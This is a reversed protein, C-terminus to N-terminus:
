DELASQLNTEFSSRGVMEEFTLRNTKEINKLITSHIQSDTFFIKSKKSGSKILNQLKELLVTLSQILVPNTRLITTKRGM